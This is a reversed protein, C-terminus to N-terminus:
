VYLFLALGYSVLVFLVVPLALWLLYFIGLGVTMLVVLLCGILIIPVRMLFGFFRALGSIVKAEFWAEIGGGAYQEDMRHWPSFLTRTLLSISFVHATFWLFDRWLPVIARVGLTYHWTLYAFFVESLAM